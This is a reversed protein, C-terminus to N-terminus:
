NTAYRALLQSLEAFQSLSLTEGRAATSLGLQRLAAEVETRALGPRAGVLCNAVTKRRQGFAAKVVNFFWAEDGVAVAPQPRPVLRVCTSDVDPQPFFARRSVDFLKAVEWGYQALVSLRGYEARGPAALLRRAVEYQVVLVARRIRARHTSLEVLIPSTIQYPIAGVVAAAEWASWDCTLIDQHVVRVNARPAMRQSLLEAIGRDVEVAFVRGAREALADTLAGLGAGIEVVTEAPMLQCADVVRTVTRADVLYNQGLRKTLRLGHERLVSKLESASLM